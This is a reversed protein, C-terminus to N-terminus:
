RRLERIWEVASGCGILCDHDDYALLFSLDDRTIYFVFHFTEALLRGIDRGRPVLLCVPDLDKQLLLLVPGDDVFEALWTWAM